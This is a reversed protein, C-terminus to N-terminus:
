DLLGNHADPTVTLLITIGRYSVDEECQRLDSEHKRRNKHQDEASGGHDESGWTSTGM